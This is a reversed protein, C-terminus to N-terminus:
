PESEFLADESANRRRLVALKWWHLEQNAVDKQQLLTPVFLLAPSHISVDGPPISDLLENLATEARVLNEPNLGSSLVYARVSFLPWDVLPSTLFVFPCFSKAFRFKEIHV